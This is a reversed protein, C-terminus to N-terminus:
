PYPNQPMGTVNIIDTPLPLAYYNANPSLQHVNGNILRKLFIDAGGKNLRKIDMWRLGRFLLEKRREALILKLATDTDAATTDPYLATEKWRNKMLTKLDTLAAEKNGARAYCEARTLYMEDVAIGSFILGDSSYSGKFNQYAGNPKFFATKRLDNDDYQSYLVTDICSITGDKHLGLDTRVSGQRSFFVIEKNFRPFPAGAAPNVESSNYNLLQNRTQLLLNSYKLASDYIRTSLYARAILGYAASRSPRYFNLSPEPLFLLSEKADKIVREYSEKVSSRVSPVNFDSGLRLAIGADSDFSTSDFAKAYDWCVNLFNYARFFLASGKVNKWQLENLSTIPIKEILELCLNANYVARYAFSWDNQFVSPYSIWKYALQADTFISSYASPLMFFDDSSGDGTSPSNHNMVIVDDLLGQADELTTPVILSSNQKKDLYKKCSTIHLTLLVLIGCAFVHGFFLSLGCTTENKMGTDEM